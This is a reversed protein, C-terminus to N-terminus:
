GKTRDPMTKIELPKGTKKSTLKSKSYIKSKKITKFGDAGHDFAARRGKDLGVARVLEEGFVGYDPVNGVIRGNIIRVM